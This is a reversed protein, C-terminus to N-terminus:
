LHEEAYKIVTSKPVPFSFPIYQAAIKAYSYLPTRTRNTESCLLVAPDRAANGGNPFVLATRLSGPAGREEPGGVAPPWFGLEGGTEWSQPSQGACQGLALAPRRVDQGSQSQLDKM